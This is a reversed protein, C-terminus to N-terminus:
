GKEKDVLVAVVRFRYNTKPMLDTIICRHARGFYIKRFQEANNVRVGIGYQLEYHLQKKNSSSLVLPHNWSV